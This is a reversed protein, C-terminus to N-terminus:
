DQLFIIDINLYRCFLTKFVKDSDTNSASDHLLFTVAIFCHQLTSNGPM